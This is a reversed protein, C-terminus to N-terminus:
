PLLQTQSSSNAYIFQCIDEAPRAFRVSSVRKLKGLDSRIPAKFVAPLKTPNGPQGEDSFVTVLPRCSQFLLPSPALLLDAFFLHLFLHLSSCAISWRLAYWFCSLYKRQGQMLNFRMGCMAVSDLLLTRSLGSSLSTYYM